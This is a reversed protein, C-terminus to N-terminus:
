FTGADVVAVNGYIRGDVILNGTIEGGTLQLSTNAYAYASNAQTFASNATNFAANAGDQVNAAGVFITSTSVKQSASGSVKVNIAM